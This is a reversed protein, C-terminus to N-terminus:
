SDTAAITALRVPRMLPRQTPLAVPRGHRALCAAIEAHCLKGQCPGTAAGTRRKLLEIEDFGDAIAQDLDKLRVDECLCAFSDPEPAAPAGGGTDLGLPGRAQGVAILRLNAAGCAVVIPPSGTVSAQMGAQLQLEYAPQSYALVLLDVAMRTGDAFEVASLRRTGHAARPPESRCWAPATGRAKALREVTALGTWDGAVGIRWNAPLANAALLRALARGGVIGPLDNNRFAPLRDYAGTAVILAEFRIVIPGVADVALARPPDHYIGAILTQPLLTVGLERAAALQPAILEARDPDFLASGGLEAAECLVVDRGADAQERAAALGSLGGGAILTHCALERRRGLAHETNKSLKPAAALARLRNLYFQRLWRPRLLSSEHFWPPLREAIRGVARLPDFRSGGSDGASVQCALAPGGPTAIRCQQCWGAHCFAARPRHFRFSRGLAPRGKALQRAALSVTPESAL